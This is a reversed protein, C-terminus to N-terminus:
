TKAPTQPPKSCITANVIPKKNVNPAFLSATTLAHLRTQKRNETTIAMM